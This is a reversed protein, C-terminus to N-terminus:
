LRVVRSSSHMKKLMVWENCQVVRDGCQEGAAVGAVAPVVQASLSSKSCDCLQWSERLKLKLIGSVVRKM